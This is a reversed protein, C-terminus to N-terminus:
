YDPLLIRNGGGADMRELESLARIFMRKSKKDIKEITENTNRRLLVQKKLNQFYWNEACSKQRKEKFLMSFKLREENKNESLLYVWMKEM